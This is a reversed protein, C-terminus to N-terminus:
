LEMLRVHIGDLDAVELAEAYRRWPLGTQELRSVVQDIDGRPLQVTFDSLGLAEPVAPRRSRWVNTGLHHHYGDRGLFLAGPYNRQTVSFGLIRGYFQEAHSLDAVSLHVHGIRTDDPLLPGPARGAALLPDFDLAETFMTVQADPTLAPWEDRPRDAYLELGNGEPDCLYLAESVGHDASGLPVGLELLHAAVRGLAPRNPYLLAMHFLGATGAPRPPADHAAELVLLAPSTGTPSMALRSGTWVVEKLRLVDQYFAQMRAIDAVRLTLATLRVSRFFIDSTGM